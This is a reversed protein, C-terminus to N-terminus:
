RAAGAAPAPREPTGARTRTGARARAPSGRRERREPLDTRLAGNPM